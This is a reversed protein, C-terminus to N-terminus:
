LWIPCAPHVLPDKGTRQKRINSHLNVTGAQPDFRPQRFTRPRFITSKQPKFNPTNWRSWQSIRPYIGSTLENAECRDWLSGDELVHIGLSCLEANVQLRPLCQKQCPISIVRLKKRTLYGRIWRQLILVPSYHALINNMTSILNRIQKMESRLTSIQPSAPLHVFSYPSLAKFKDNILWDETIEEDAIVFNDLAKLTRMGNIIYHRYKPVLSVPTDFLTLAILSPCSFLPEISKLQGIINDHLYLLQLCKMDSWFWEDPLDTIHNGHLDLKILNPCFALADIKTIYNKSLICIRLAPCNTLYGLNILCHRSLNVVVIEELKKEKYIRDMEGHLLILSKSPSVLLNVDVLHKMGTSIEVRIAENSSGELM